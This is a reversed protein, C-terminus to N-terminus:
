DYFTWALGYRLIRTNMPNYPVLYYNKGTIGWNVHDFCLLIRTRKIKANLFVNVFPYEGVTVESQNFYRGTAPMYSMARYSTHIFAEVGTEIHMYGDTLRFHINRDFWFASRLTALPLNLIDKNSTQQLLLTNGFRFGGFRITKDLTVAAISLAGEHWAPMADTDFYNFNDIVTYRIGAEFLRAPHRFEAGAAIAFERGENGIDWYFNNSGWRSFWVPPTVLSINGDIILSADGKSLSFDKFIEGKIDFDGARRGGFFLDGEAKWGFRTGIRNGICGTVALNYHNWTLTDGYVSDAPFSIFVPMVQAHSHYEHRIGGGAIIEFGGRSRFGFDFRVTNGVMFSSLSDKTLAPAYYATDYFGSRPSLDSYGRRNSELTLAHTFIGSLKGKGDAEGDKLFGTPSYNQVILLNRNRLSSKARNLGGLRVPVDRTEYQDIELPNVIGGNENTFLNNVGFAGFLRYKQRLFSANLLFNKNEAKQYSYQGLSYVIDYILGVNLYRNVNLSSRIRFTQEAVNRAPGAYTFVMETFPVPTDMFIAKSPLWLFPYYHSYLLFDPNRPRDFFSIQYLPLGYNGPYANFASYRDTIRHRHFLTFSTDMEVSIMETYDRSLTYQRTGPVVDQGAAISMMAALGVTAITSILGRKM